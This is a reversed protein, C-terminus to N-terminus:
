AAKVPDATEGVPRDAEIAAALKAARKALRNAKTDRFAKKRQGEVWANKAVEICLMAQSASIQLGHCARNGINIAVQIQRQTEYRLQDAVRLTALLYKVGCRAEEESMIQGTTPNRPWCDRLRCIDILSREISARALCGAARTYGLLILERAQELLVIASPRAENNWPERYSSITVVRMQESM